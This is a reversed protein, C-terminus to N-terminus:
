NTMPIAEDILMVPIDNDVPYLYKGDARILGEKIEASVPQGGRNKVTGERIRANLAALEQADALRVPTKDDPCVLIELLEKDVMRGM